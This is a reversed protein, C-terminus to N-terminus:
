LDELLKYNLLCDFGDLFIRKESIGVLYNTYTKNNVILEKIKYCKLLGEKNLSKYPIYFPNKNQIYKNILRKEVLIIYKHTVPDVLKNGSDIFGLCDLESKNNFVIKVQQYLNYTTKMKKHSRVYCYLIVPAIIILLLYNPGLGKHFFALGVNKYSLETNLFYLFGGLTISIMYLYFLNTLTYKINIYRFSLIVMLASVLVKLLFLLLSNMKIFLLFISLAGLFSSLVIRRLRTNRKLTIDITLLILFDYSFNLLLLVDVYITM